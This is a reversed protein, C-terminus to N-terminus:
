DVVVSREGRRTQDVGFTIKKVKKVSERFCVVPTVRSRFADLLCQRDKKKELV